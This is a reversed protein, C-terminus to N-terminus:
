GFIQSFHHEARQIGYRDIEREIAPKARNMPMQAVSLASVSHVKARFAPGSRTYVLTGPTGEPHKSYKLGLAKRQKATKGDKKGVYVGTGGGMNRYPPQGGQNPMRMPLTSTKGKVIKAQIVYAPPNWGYWSGMAAFTGGIHGKPGIVPIDCQLSGGGGTIKYNKVGKNVFSGDVEYENPVERKTVTRTHRGVDHLTRRMLRDFQANTLKTQMKGLLADLERTDMYVSAM